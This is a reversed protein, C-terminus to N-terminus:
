EVLAFEVEVTEPHHFMEFGMVFVWSTGCSMVASSPSICQCMIPVLLLIM